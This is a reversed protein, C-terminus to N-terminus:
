SVRRYVLFSMSYENQGDADHKSREILEWQDWDIDPFGVDGEVEAHVRTLYFREVRPFAMEYIRAGGIIFAEEGSGETNRALRMAEDLNLAVLVENFGPQFDAQRSIVVSTRGPLPRGISDWTKRGMVITHGMTLRKFRRLDASLHWPLDGDRGIVGNEAVAAILSLRM